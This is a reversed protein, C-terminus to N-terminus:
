SKGDSFDSIVKLEESYPNKLIIKNLSSSLSGRKHNLFVPFPNLSIKFIKQAKEEKIIKKEPLTQRSTTVFERKKPQSKCNENEKEKKKVTKNLFRIEYPEKNDEKIPSIENYPNISKRDINKENFRQLSNNSKLIKNLNSESESKSSVSMQSNDIIKVNKM